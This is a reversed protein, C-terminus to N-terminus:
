SLLFWLLDKEKKIYQSKVKGECRKLRKECFEGKYIQPQTKEHTNEVKLMITEVDNLKWETM